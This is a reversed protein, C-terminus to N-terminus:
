LHPIQPESLYPMKSLWDRERERKKKERQRKRGVWWEGGPVSGGDIPAPRQFNNKSLSKSEKDNNDPVAIFMHYLSLWNSGREWFNSIAIWFRCAWTQPQFVYVQCGSPCIGIVHNSFPLLLSILVASSHLFFCLHSLTMIAKLSRIEM